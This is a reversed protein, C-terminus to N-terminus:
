GDLNDDDRLAPFVPPWVMMFPNIDLFRGDRVKLEDYVKESRSELHMHMLVASSRLWLFVFELNYDVALVMVDERRSCAERVPVKDYVVAWDDADSSTMPLQWISLLYGEAHILFLVSGEEGCSLTFNDTSVRDPLQLLCSEAAAMDLRLIHGCKTLSYVKGEVPPLTYAIPPLPEPLDIVATRRVVWTASGSTLLDVQLKAKTGLPLMLVAVAGDDDCGAAKEPLFFWILSWKPAPPLAAKGRAPRLPSLVAHRCATPDFDTVLLRGNRCDSIFFHGEAAGARRIATALEPARSVPVFRPAWAGLERLYFGLLAPPHLRRFRRLFAPHSAHRLWRRSVLAVRVLTTAFGLRLLIERLLDDDDFVVSVAAASAAPPPPATLEAGEREAEM